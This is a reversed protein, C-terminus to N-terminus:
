AAAPGDDDVDTGLYLQARRLDRAAHDLADGADRTYGATEGGRVETLWTRAMAVDRAADDLADAAAARRPDGDRNM